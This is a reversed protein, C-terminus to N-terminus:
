RGSPTTPMMVGHFAGTFRASPGSTEASYVPLVTTSFGEGYVGSDVNFTPSSM